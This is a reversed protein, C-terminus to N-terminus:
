ICFCKCKGKRILTERMFRTTDDGDPCKLIAVCLVVGGGRRNICDRNLFKWGEINYESM